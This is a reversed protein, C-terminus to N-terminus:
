TMTMPRGIGIFSQRHFKGVSQREGQHDGRRQPRAIRGGGAAKQPHTLWVLPILLLFLIASVRFLDNAGLMASQQDVLRNVVALAQTADLGGAQLQGLTAMATPNAIVM